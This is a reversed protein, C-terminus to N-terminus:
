KKRFKELVFNENNSLSWLTPFDLNLRSYLLHNAYYIRDNSDIVYIEANYDEKFSVFDKYQAVKYTDNNRKILKAILDEGVFLKYENQYDVIQDDLIYNLEEFGIKSSPEDESYQVAAKRKKELSKKPLPLLYM